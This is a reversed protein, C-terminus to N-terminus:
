EEKKLEEVTDYFRQCEELIENDEETTIDEKLDYIEKHRNACDVCARNIDLFFKEDTLINSYMWTLAAYNELWETRDDKLAIEIMRAINLHKSVRHTMAGNIDGLKIYDPEVKYVFNGIQREDKSLKIGKKLKKM